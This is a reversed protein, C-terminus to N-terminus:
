INSITSNTGLYLDPYLIFGIFSLILTVIGITIGAIAMGKGKYDKNGKLDKLATIGFVIALISTFINLAPVWSFLALILSTKAYPHAKAM